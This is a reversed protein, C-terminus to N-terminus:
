HGAPEQREVEAALEKLKVNLARALARVSAWSPVSQALEIKSLTTYSLDARRAVSEQSLGRDERLRRLAAALAPDPPLQSPM